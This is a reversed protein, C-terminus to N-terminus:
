KRETIIKIAEASTEIKDVQGRWMEFFTKQDRTLQRHTKDKEPDKIEFIYTRGRFGVMIDVPKRIIFVDAGVKRLDKIIDPQNRDIREARM